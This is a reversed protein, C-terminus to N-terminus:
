DSTEVSSDASSTHQNSDTRSLGTTERAVWDCKNAAKLEAGSGDVVLTKHVNEVLQRISALQNTEDVTERQLVQRAAWHQMETVSLELDDDDDDDEDDDGHGVEADKMEYAADVSEEVDFDGVPPKLRRTAKVCLTMLYAVVELVVQIVGFPAPVITRAKYELLLYYKTCM